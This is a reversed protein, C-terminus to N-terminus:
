SCNQPIQAVNEPVLEEVQKKKLIEQPVGSERVKWWWKPHGVSARDSHNRWISKQLQKQLSQPLLFPCWVHYSITLFQLNEQKPFDATTFVSQIVLQM